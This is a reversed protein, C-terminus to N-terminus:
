SKLRRLIWLPARLLIYLWALNPPLPMLAVDEPAVLYRRLEARFFGPGEGLLVLAALATAQRRFRAFFGIADTELMAELALAELVAGAGGRLESALEPPLAVGFLRECLLLTQAACRGAGVAVAKRYLTQADDSQTALLAVADALWKLRSWRHQAGHVCLYVFLADDRLTAVRSDGLQIMQRPACLDMGQALRENYALRWHLEVISRQTPHHFEWERRSVILLQMQADDFAPAPPHMDYGFGELLARAARLQGADVLIDVDLSHKTSFSRYVRAELTAGKVFLADIKAAEFAGSLRATEAALALNRRTMARVNAALRRAFAEPLAIDAQALGERARGFLRHRAILAQLARWDVEGHACDRLAQDRAAGAPWRCCACLLFFERPAASLLRESRRRAVRALIAAIM